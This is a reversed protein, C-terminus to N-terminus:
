APARLSPRVMRLRRGRTTRLHAPRGWPAPRVAGGIGRYDFRLVALGSDALYDAFAGYFGRPVGMASGILVAGRLPGEPDSLTGALPLHDLAPFIVDM